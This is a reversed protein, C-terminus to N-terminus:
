VGFEKVRCNEKVRRGIAEGFTDVFQAKTLNSDIVLQGQHRDIADILIFLQNHVFESLKVKDIEDLFVRPTFGRKVADEIKKVTIDPKPTDEGKKENFLDFHQQILDPVSKRWVYIRPITTLPEYAGWKGKQPWWKGLNKSVARRYLAYSCTTKSFGAPAFFAYGDLPHARLEDYLLQQEPLPLRSKTDPKLDDLRFDRYKIPLTGLNNVVQTVPPSFM